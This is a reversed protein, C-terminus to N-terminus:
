GPSLGVCDDSHLDIDILHKGLHTRFYQVLNGPTNTAHTAAPKITAGVVRRHLWREM